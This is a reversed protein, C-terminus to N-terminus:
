GSSHLEGNQLGVEGGPLLETGGYSLQPLVRCNMKGVIVGAEGAPPTTSIAWM